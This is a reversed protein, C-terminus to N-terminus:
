ARSAKLQLLHSAEPYPMVPWCQEIKGQNHLAIHGFQLLVAESQTPIFLMYEAHTADAPIAYLEQNSSRGYLAIRKSQQPYVPKALWNGGYIFVGHSPLLGIQTLLNSLWSPGPLKPRRLQKLIPAAIFAASKYAQLPALEFDTPKLLASGAALENADLPEDSHQYLNFTTSGGTNLCLEELAYSSHQIICATFERFRRHSDALAKDPGGFLKPIKGIHAEYGMVGGLTLHDSQEIINLCAIFQTTSNIGGRELGINIELNIRLSLGKQCAFAQYAELRDISDVLWQLQKNPEFSNNALHEHWRYFHGLATVTMPKGMLIDSDPFTSVLQMLFPLHFSMLKNSNLAQMVLALLEPCPLSKAVIRIARGKCQQKLLAINELLRPKDIVLLPHSVEAAKLAHCIAQYSPQDHMSSQNHTSSQDQCITPDSM